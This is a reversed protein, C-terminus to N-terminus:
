PGIDGLGKAIGVVANSRRRYSARKGAAKAIARAVSTNDRDRSAGEGNGATAACSDSRCKAWGISGVVVASSRSVSNGYIFGGM